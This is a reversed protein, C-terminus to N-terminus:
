QYGADRERRTRGPMGVKPPKKEPIHPTHKPGVQKRNKLWNILRQMGASRPMFQRFMM